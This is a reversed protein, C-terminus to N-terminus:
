KEEMFPKSLAEVVDKQYDYNILGSVALYSPFLVLLDLIVLFPFVLLRIVLWYDYGFTSFNIDYFPLMFCNCCVQCLTAAILVLIFKEYKKPKANDKGVEASLLNIKEQAQFMGNMHRAYWKTFRKVEKESCGRRLMDRNNMKIHNAYKTNFSMQMMTLKIAKHNFIALVVWLVVLTVFMICSFYIALTAKTFHLAMALFTVDFTEYHQLMIFTVFLAEIGLMIVTAMFSFRVIKQKGFRFVSSILGAVLGYAVCIVFYGYHFMGSTLAVTLLDTIAGVFLGIIPGFALGGLQILFQEIAVRWGPYARFIIGLFGATVVSLILIIAVSLAITMAVSTIGKIRMRPVIYYRKHLKFRYYLKKAILFIIVAAVCCIFILMVTEQSFLPEQSTSAGLM